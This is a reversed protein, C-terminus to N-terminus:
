IEGMIDKKVQRASVRCASSLLPLWVFRSEGMARREPQVRCVQGPQRVPHRLRSAGNHVSVLRLQAAQVM